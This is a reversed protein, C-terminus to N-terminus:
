RVIARARASRDLPLRAELWCRSGATSGSLARRRSARRPRGASSSWTPVASGSAAADGGVDVSRVEGGAASSVEEVVDPQRHPVRHRCCARGASRYGYRLVVAGGPIRQRPLRRRAAERGAAAAPLRRSPRAAVGTAAAPGLTGAAAAPPLKEVRVVTVGSSTSSACSRAARAPVALAAALALPSCPSRSWSRAAAPRRAAASAPAAAVVRQSIRADAPWELEGGLAVCRASSSLCVRERLRELARATRSKVTGRRIGLVAATEEESLGLFFRCALVARQDDPLAELAALLEDRREARAATAEPSPAADGSSARPPRACRSRPAAAPRAAATARRTPWSGCCGPGFAARGRPLPRARPVGERVRGARGDEADAANGRSSTRPASHSRGPIRQVLEEYADADGRRRARSSSTRKTRTAPGGGVQKCRGPRGPEVSQRVPGRRPRARAAPRPHPRRRRAPRQARVREHDVAAPRPDHAATEERSSASSTCTTPTSRPPPRCSTRAAAAGRRVARPWDDGGRAPRGRRSRGSRATRGRVDVPLDDRRHLLRRTRSSPARRARARGGLALREGQAYAAEHLLAYIPNRGFPRGRGRREHLFGALRLPARAPLADDRLRREHRAGHGLQRFRRATLRDGGPLRM